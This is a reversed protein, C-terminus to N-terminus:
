PGARLGGGVFALRRSSASAPLNHQEWDPSQRADFDTVPYRSLYKAEALRPDWFVKAEKLGRFRLYVLTLSFVTPADVLMEKELRNRRRKNRPENKQLVQLDRKRLSGSCYVTWGLLM